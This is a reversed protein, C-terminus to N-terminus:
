TARSAGEEMASQTKTTLYVQLRQSRSGERGGNGFVTFIKFISVSNFFGNFLQPWFKQQTPSSTITAKIPLLFMMLRM